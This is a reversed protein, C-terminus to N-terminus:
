GVRAVADLYHEHWRRTDAVANFTFCHVGEICLDDGDADFADLLTGPEYRPGALLRGMGSRNKRLYRLSPGVGLRAGVRLLRARDVAGAVGLRIPLDIGAGRVGVIWDRVVTPDFCMQTSIWGDVGAAALVGQKAALQVGAVQPPILPHGDPYGAVGVRLPGPDGDLLDRLFPVAGPYPGREHPADGAIVFVEGIGLDRLWAALRRAHARDEVLRAALHPTPRHGRRLLEETLEQTRAIGHTPSCTVSVSAAPPLEDIAADVGKMPIVEYHLRGPYTSGPYTMAM